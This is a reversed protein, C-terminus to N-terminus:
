YINWLVYRSNPIVIAEPAASNDCAVGDETPVGGVTPAVEFATGVSLSKAHGDLFCFNARGATPMKVKTGNITQDQTKEINHRFMPISATINTSPNQIAPNRAGMTYGNVVSNNIAIAGTDGVIITAAPKKIDALSYGAQIVNAANVTRPDGMAVNWGYATTTSYTDNLNLKGEGFNPCAFVDASKIYPYIQYMWRGRGQAADGQVPTLEDYDSTYQMIGLAMQKTNSLCAIQRAKERAQAFVPFLIAALIAIIAIVVLLEILTFASAQKACVSRRRNLSLVSM